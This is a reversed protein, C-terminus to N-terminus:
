SPRGPPCMSITGAIGSSCRRCTRASMNSMIWEPTSDRAIKGLDPPVYKADDFFGEYMTGGYAIVAANPKNGGEPIGLRETLGPTNWQTAALAAVGAGASFGMVVIADPDSGWEEAHQRIMWIASSVEDLPNPFVSEEGVSYNLVFTNYGEKMFTLAVPEGEKDSLYAYAGGPLVVIAPRKPLATGDCTRDHVYTRMNVRGDDTFNISEHLM